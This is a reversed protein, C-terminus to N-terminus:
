RAKVHAIVALSSLSWVSKDNGTKETRCTVVVVTAALCLSVHRSVLSHLRIFIFSSYFSFFLDIFQDTVFIGHRYISSVITPFRRYDVFILQIGFLCTSVNAFIYGNSNM